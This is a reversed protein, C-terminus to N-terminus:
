QTSGRVRVVEAGAEAMSKALRSAFRRLLRRLPRALAEFDRFFHERGGKGLLCGGGEHNFHEARLNRSRFEEWAWADMRPRLPEVLDCALSDRGFEIEHFFGILPDLGAAHCARVAEFHLLTYGLSLVANVPDRPPRRNRGHFALEDPFLRTYGKFYAVAAAGEIGRLSNLGLDPEALIRARAQELGQLGINLPHRLDPREGLARSLLRKQGKLKGLVLRRSWQGRWEADDYRRYQGIRRTADNHSRGHVVALKSGHHGGFLLVGIGQDALRALLSSGIHVDSRMVVRELLHVPVTGHREGDAYVALARGELKLSLDRRDLYLTSM